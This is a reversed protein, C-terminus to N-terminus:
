QMSCSTHQVRNGKANINQVISKNRLGLVQVRGTCKLASLQVRLQQCDLRPVLLLRECCRLLCQCGGGQTNHNRSSYFAAVINGCAPVRVLRRRSQAGTIPEFARAAWRRVGINQVRQTHNRHVRAAVDRYGIREAPELRLLLFYGNSHQGNRRFTAARQAAKAKAKLSLHQRFIDLADGRPEHLNSVAAHGCQVAGSLGISDAFSHM